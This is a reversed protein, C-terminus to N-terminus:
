YGSLALGLASSNLILFVVSAIKILFSKSVFHPQACMFGSLALTGTATALYMHASLPISTKFKVFEDSLVEKYSFFNFFDISSVLFFLCALVQIKCKILIQQQEYREQDTMRIYGQNQQQIFIDVSLDPLPSSCPVIM